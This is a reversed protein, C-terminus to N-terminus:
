EWKETGVADGLPQPIAFPDVVAKRFKRAPVRQEFLIDMEGFTRGKPEPLRFYTWTLCLFSIGAWFFGAKGKWNWYAPNLMYPTIVGNMLGRCNYLARALVTTKTRLRSPPIETVISYAVTGTAIDYCLTFLLLLSGTAYYAANSHALSTFGVLILVTFQATLGCLYLKRRGIYTMAFWSIAAGCIAVAYLAMSFDFSITTPLGAQQFFYAAYGILSAGSAAQMVWAVCTIETRRLNVGKFCDIYSTGSDIEKELENTHRMMSVTDDLQADTSLCPSEPAFAIGVILPLPWMWQLAFPIRYAWQDTRKLMSRIVSSAILQGMGWCMNVYTPLYGRLAVSCVEAAYVTTMTQFAGWPVGLLIEGVLLTKINQTFFPIFILASIFCLMGIM